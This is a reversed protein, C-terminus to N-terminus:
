DRLTMLLVSLLWLGLVALPPVAAYRLWSLNWRWRRFGIKVSVGLHPRAYLDVSWAWNGYLGIRGCNRRPNLRIRM